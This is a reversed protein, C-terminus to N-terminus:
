KTAEVRDLIMSRVREIDTFFNDFKSGVCYIERAAMQKDHDTIMLVRECSPDFPRKYTTDIKTWELVLGEYSVKTAIAFSYSKYTNRKYTNVDTSTSTNELVFVDGKKARPGTYSPAKEQVWADFERKATM